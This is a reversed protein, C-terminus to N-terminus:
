ENKSYKEPRKSIKTKKLLNKSNTRKMSGKSISSGTKLKKTHNEYESLSDYNKM